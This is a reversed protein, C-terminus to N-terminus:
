RWGETRNLIICHIFFDGKGESRITARDLRGRSGRPAPFRVIRPQMITFVGGSGDESFTAVNTGAAEGFLYEKDTVVPITKHYEGAGISYGDVEFECSFSEPDGTVLVECHNLRNWQQSQDQSFALSVEGSVSEVGRPGYEQVVSDGGVFLVQRVRDMVLASGFIGPHFTWGGPEGVHYAVCGLRISSPWAVHPPDDPPEEAVGEYDYIYLSPYAVDLLNWAAAHEIELDFYGEPFEWGTDPPYLPCGIWQNTSAGNGTISVQSVVDGNSDLIRATTGIYNCSGTWCLFLTMTKTLTASSLESLNVRRRFKQVKQSPHTYHLYCHNKTTWAYTAPDKVTPPYTSTSDQVVGDHYCSWGYAQAQVYTLATVTMAAASGLPTGLRSEPFLNASLGKTLDLHTSDLTGDDVDLVGGLTQGRITLVLTLNQQISELLLPADLAQIGHILYAPMDSIRYGLNLSFTYAHYAGDATIAQAVASAMISLDGGTSAAFPISGTLDEGCYVANATITADSLIDDYTAGAATINAVLYYPGTDPDGARTRWVSWYLTGGDADITPTPTPRAVRFGRDTGNATAAAPASGLTRGIGADYGSTSAGWTTRYHHVGADVAGALLPTLTPAAVPAVLARLDTTGTNSGAHPSVDVTALPRVQISPALTFGAASTKAYLTLTLPVRDTLNYAPASAAASISADTATDTYTTDTNNTITAVLRFVTPYTISNRYIKRQRARTNPSPVLALPVTKNSATTTVASSEVSAATENGIDDVFSQKYRHAGVDM